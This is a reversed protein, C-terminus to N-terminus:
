RLWQSFGYPKLGMPLKKKPLFRNLLSQLAFKFPFNYEGLSYLDFRSMSEQWEEEVQRSRMYSKDANALFFRQIAAASKLPYDQGSLLNLHSYVIGRKLIEEFSDLTAKVMSYNAWTIVTRNKIFFVNDLRELQVFEDINSKGDLHIYIDTHTCMLRKVLRELQSPNGHALILHALRM